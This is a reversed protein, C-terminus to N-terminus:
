CSPGTLYLCTLPWMAHPGGSCYTQVKSIDLLVSQRETPGSFWECKLIRLATTVLEELVSGETKLHENSCRAAGVTRELQQPELDQGGTVSAALSLDPSGLAAERLAHSPKTSEPCYLSSDNMVSPKVEVVVDPEICQPEFADEMPEDLPEKLSRYPFEDVAFSRHKIHEQIYAAARALQGEGKLCSLSAIPPNSRRRATELSQSHLSYAEPTKSVVNLGHRRSMMENLPMPGDSPQPHTAAHTAIVSLITPASAHM